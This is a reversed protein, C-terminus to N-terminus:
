KQYFANTEMSYEQAKLRRIDRGTFILYAFTSLRSMVRMDYREEIKKISLNTSIITPLGKTLRTDVINYVTSKSFSTEFEAGFDDLILLDASTVTEFTDNSNESRNFHEKEIKETFSSVTGYLVNYGKQIIKTAMSLALHTKGVGSTGAILLNRSTPSFSEAYRKCFDLNNSMTVYCDDDKETSVGKYYSLNFTEFSCSQLYPNQNLKLISLRKIESEFCSCRSGNFFGTDSCKECSYKIELYDAPYGHNKLTDKIMNQAQINKRKIEAIKAKVDGGESIVKLISKNTNSMVLSIEKIEPIKEYIESYHRDNETNAAIRRANINDLATSAIDQKM